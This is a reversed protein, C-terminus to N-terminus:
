KHISYYIINNCISKTGDIITILNSVIENQSTGGLSCVQALIAGFKVMVDEHKDSMTKTFLEKFTKLKPCMHDNQQVLVMASALLAGQRVYNVPDNIMPELISLAEKM